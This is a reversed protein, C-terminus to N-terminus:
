RDLRGSVEKDEGDADQAKRWLGLSDSGDEGSTGRM